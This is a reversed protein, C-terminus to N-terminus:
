RKVVRFEAKIPFKVEDSVYEVWKRLRYRGPAAERPIHVRQWGSVAGPPLGLRPEFVPRSKLRVWVGQRFRALEYEYGYAIERGSYNEIRVRSVGGTSVRDKDIRLTVDSSEGTVCKQTGGRQVAHNPPDAWAGASYGVTVVLVLQGVLGLRRTMVEAKCRHNM